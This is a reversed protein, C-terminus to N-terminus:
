ICVDHDDCVSGRCHWQVRYCVVESLKLMEDFSKAPTLLRLIGWLTGGGCSTGSVREFEGDATVKLISVGSGINVLLYPYIASTDTVIEEFVMSEAHTEMNPPSAADSDDGSPQLERYSFVENPVERILFDLGATM